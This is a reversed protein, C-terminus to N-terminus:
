TRAAAIRQIRGPASFYDTAPATERPTDFCYGIVGTKKGEDATAAPTADYSRPSFVFDPPSSLDARPPTLPQREPKRTHTLSFSRSRVKKRFSPDITNNAPM